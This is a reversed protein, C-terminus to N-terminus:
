AESYTSNSLNLPLIRMPNIIVKMKVKTQVSAFSWTMLLQNLFCRAFGHYAQPIVAHISLVVATKEMGYHTMLTSFMIGDPLTLDQSVTTTLVWLILPFEQVRARVTTDVILYQLTKLYDLQTHGSTSGLDTEM